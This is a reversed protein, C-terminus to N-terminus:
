DDDSHRHRERRGHERDDDDMFARDGKRGDGAQVQAAQLSRIQGYAEDLAHYAEELKQRYVTVEQLPAAQAVLPPAEERKPAVSATAPQSSKAQTRVAKDVVPNNSAIQLWGNHFAIGLSGAFLIILTLLGAITVTARNSTPQM